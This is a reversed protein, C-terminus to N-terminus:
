AAGDREERLITLVLQRRIEDDLTRKFEAVARDIEVRSLGRRLFLRRFVDACRRKHDAQREIPQALVSRAAARLEGKMSSAPFISLAAPPVKTESRDFLDLQATM